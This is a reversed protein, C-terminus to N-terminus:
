AILPDGPRRYRRITVFPEAADMCAMSGYFKARHRLSELSRPHPWDCVESAYCAFADLKAQLVSSIDVYTDPQFTQPWNWETSSCTEFAYVARVFQETPRSAVLVADFLRKHDLNLDGGFQTYIIEPKMDRIRDELAGILDTLLIKELQQDPYRLFEISMGLIDAAKRGFEEQPVDRDHYRMSAGECVVVAHVQDGADAHRRITGGVGLLEDDPHAGIVLVKRGSSM